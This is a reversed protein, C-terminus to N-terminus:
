RTRFFKRMRDTMTHQYLFTRLVARRELAPLTNGRSNGFGDAWVRSFIMYRMGDKYEVAKVRHGNRRYQLLPIMGDDIIRILDTMQPEVNKRQRPQETRLHCDPPRAIERVNCEEVSCTSHDLELVKRHSLHLAYLLDSVSQDLLGQSM